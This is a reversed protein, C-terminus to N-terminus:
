DNRQPMKWLKLYGSDNLQKLLILLIPFLIMGVIGACRFGIYISLLTAAPHLGLNKGVLKPELCSRILAIIIYAAVLSITRHTNGLLLDFAAWPLLVTGVGFIPLADIVATIFALLAAYDIRMLFFVICLETFTIGMLTLEARVWKGFAFFIQSKVNRTSSQFREPIQCILFSRIQPYSSSIFFTGIAYTVVFLLLKPTSSAAASLFSFIKETLLAPLEASRETINAIISKLYGQIEVPAAVIFNYIKDNVSGFVDPIEVLLTPLEKVFASIEYIARGLILAVIGIIIILVFSTCAVSSFGRKLRFKKTLYRIVPEILWATAFAFIFPMFLPFVFRIGIWLAFISLVAYLLTLLIRFHKKNSLQDGWLFESM